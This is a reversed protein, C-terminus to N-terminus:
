FSLSFSFFLSLFFLFFGKSVTRMFILLLIATKYGDEGKQVNGKDNGESVGSIFYKTARRCFPPSFPPSIGKQPLFIAIHVQSIKDRFAFLCAFYSDMTLLVCFDVQLSEWQGFAPCYIWCFLLLLLLLELPNFRMLFHFICSNIILFFDWQDINPKTWAGVPSESWQFIFSVIM